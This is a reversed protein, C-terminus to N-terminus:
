HCQVVGRNKGSHVPPLFAARWHHGSRSGPGCCNPGISQLRAGASALTLHIQQTNLALVRCWPVVPALYFQLGAFDGFIGCGVVVLVVYRKQFVELVEEIDGGVKCGMVEDYPERPIVLVESDHTHCVIRASSTLGHGFSDGPRFKTTTLQLVRWLIVHESVAALLRFSRSPPFCIAAPDCM